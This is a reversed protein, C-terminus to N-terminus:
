EEDEKEESGGQTEIARLKGQLYYFGGFVTAFFFPRVVSVSLTGSSPFSKILARVMCGWWARAAGVRRGCEAGVDRGGVAGGPPRGSCSGPPRGSCRGAVARQVWGASM